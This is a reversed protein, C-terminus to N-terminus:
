KKSEPAKEALRDTLGHINQGELQRMKDPSFILSPTKIQNGQVEM